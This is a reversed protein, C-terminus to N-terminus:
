KDNGNGNDNDNGSNEDGGSEYSQMRDVFERKRKATSLIFQYPAYGKSAKLQRKDTKLEQVMKNFEENSSLVQMLGRQYSFYYWANRDPEIYITLVDGSRKKIMEIYGGAFKNIQTKNIGGIGIGSHSHYATHIKEWALKVDTFFLNHIMADPVKKFTGYLNLQSIIKDAEEKGLLEGLGKEYTARAYDTPKLAPHTAIEAEMMSWAMDYFFFDLSLLLDFYTSDTNSNYAVNGVTNMSMRGVDIGLNMKGEGYVTCNEVNLAIYDGPLSTNKLKDQASIRYEANEKSYYVFGKATLIKIDSYNNLRSLFAAYVESSDKNLMIGAYLKDRDHTYIVSDIPIYLEAPNIDASFKFWYKGIKDCSHTIRSYGDFLLYQNNAKLKVQGSYEFYPSLFFGATDVIDGEAYTQFTTDVTIKNFHILQKDGVEDVYTYDGSAMYNKRAILKVHAHHINHYQTTTNALISANELPEIDANKRIIVKGDGPTIRADAIDIGEVEKAYINFESLKYIASGANFQLSDQDKSTSIFRAGTGAIAQGENPGSSSTLEIDSNDMNWTFQDMYCIFKNVPFDIFTGGTNSKFEGTRKSFDINAKVDTTSLAFSNPDTAKLRFGASCVICNLQKFEYLKSDMQAKPFDLMGSGTLGSPQLLLDGFLKTQAHYMSVPEKIYSVFMKDKHPEWHIKVEMAEAQPFSSADALEEMSFSQTTANMSDPFFIFSNSKTVSTLYNLSGDGELGQNSLKIKSFYQGKGGYTPYGESPADRSFGLSYDDQIRLTEEFDPFINGSSFNGNFALASAAFNDLSDIEFPVLHFSCKDRTYSKRYKGRKDYYVYSDSLSKLIPFEAFNALGSKNYPHDIYLEGNVHEIVSQVRLMKPYGYEDTEGNTKPVSLRLSDVNTLKIKFLKYDFEFEKGYFDFRGALIKGGFTFKRNKKLVVEQQHPYIHVRQSDSLFVQGVGRLLLDWNILSLSANPLGSIISNFELVDYDEQSSRMDIQGTNPDIQKSKANIYHLLRDTVIVQDQTIDYVLLGMNALQLLLPKIEPVSSGFASAVDQFTLTRSNYKMALNKIVLLPHQSPMGKLMLFRDETYYDSSEFHAKSEGGMTVTKMDIKPDDIKWYVGEVDMDVKHYTNFYPSQAVGDAIRLLALERSDINYKLELGPHYISDSDLRFTVAAEQSAIRHKTIVFSKSRATLFDKDKWNFTIEAPQMGSGKGIIKNGHMAFGGVYKVSKAFNNIEIRNDYSEFRPYSANSTDANAMLKEHLKGVLPFDFFGKYYFIVTDASYESSILKIRYYRLGAFVANTDFGARLWNVKGNEGVWLKETPYLVGKTRYIVASDAKSYCKLDLSKFVIKPLSDFDFTYDNNSAIWRTSASSYVANEAFLDLCIEIFSAFYKNPKTLLKDLSAQFGKFSQAEQNTVAFNMLAYLYNSFDPFAKMRKSLMKNATAVIQKKQDSTFTKTSSSYSATFKLLQKSMRDTLHKNANKYINEINNADTEGFDWVARFEEMIKEAGTADTEKLFEKMQNYFDEPQVSFSKTKQAYAPISIILIISFTAVNMLAM